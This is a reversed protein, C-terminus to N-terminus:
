YSWVFLNTIYYGVRHVKDFSPLYNDKVVTIWIWIKTTNISKAYDVVLTTRKTSSYKLHFGFHDEVNSRYFM